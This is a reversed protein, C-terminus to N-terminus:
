RVSRAQRAPESITAAVRQLLFVPHSSVMREFEEHSSEVTVGFFRGIPNGSEIFEKLVLFAEDSPLEIVHIEEDRRGRTLIATGAARLNRVWDVVGYPTLLYRKGDRELTAIPTTRPQGSKRGRVTLLYLPCDGPGMLKFGARLLTTTLVNALRVFAPVPSTKAM